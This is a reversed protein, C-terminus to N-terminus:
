RNDETDERIDDVSISANVVVASKFGVVNNNLEVEKRMVLVEDFLLLDVLEELMLLGVAVVDLM